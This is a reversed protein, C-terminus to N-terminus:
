AREERQLPFEARLADRVRELEEELHALIERARDAQGQASLRQLLRSLRGMRKAGFTAATGGLAHAREVVAGLQHADLEDGIRQLNAAADELFESVLDPTEGVTGLQRLMAVVAPDLSADEEGSGVDIPQRGQHGDAEGDAVWRVLVARLSELSVPKSVYDDMGAELCRRRDGEMADATMAIIPIRRTSLERRRIEATAQFGDMHPMRCDMLVADYDRGATAEIAELGNSVADVPYGLKGLMAVALKRNAPNDEAVLIRV